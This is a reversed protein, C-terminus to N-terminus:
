INEQKLMSAMSCMHKNGETKEIKPEHKESKVLLVICKFSVYKANIIALVSTTIDKKRLAACESSLCM